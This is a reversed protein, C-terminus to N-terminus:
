PWCITSTHWIWAIHILRHYLVIPNSPRKRISRVVIISDLFLSEVVNLWRYHMLLIDQWFIRSIHGVLMQHALLIIRRPQLTWPNSCGIRMLGQARSCIVYRSQIWVSYFIRSLKRSDGSKRHLALHFLSNTIINLKTCHSRRYISGYLSLM